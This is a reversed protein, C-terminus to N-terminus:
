PEIRNLERVCDILAPMREPCRRNVEVRINYLVRQLAAVNGSLNLADVLAQGQVGFQDLCFDSLSFRAQSPSVEADLRLHETAPDANFLPQPPSPAPEATGHEAAVAVFQGGLLQRLREIVEERPFISRQLIAEVSTSGKEILFLVNRSKVDLKYARNRLEETGKMTVVFSQGAVTM